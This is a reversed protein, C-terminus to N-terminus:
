AKAKTIRRSDHRADSDSRSVRGLATDFDTCLSLFSASASAPLARVVLTASAPLEWVRDRAIHRLRRKVANRTVAPGVARSVVFGVQVPSRQPSRDLDTVLHLVM